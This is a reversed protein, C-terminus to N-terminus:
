SDKEVYYFHERIGASWELSKYGKKTLGLGAFAAQSPSPTPKDFHKLNGEEVMEYLLTDASCLSGGSNSYLQLILDRVESGHFGGHKSRFILEKAVKPWIHNSYLGM